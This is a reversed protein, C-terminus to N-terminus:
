STEAAKSKGAKGKGRGKGGTNQQTFAAEQHSSHTSGAPQEGEAEEQREEDALEAACVPGHSQQLEGLMAQFTLTKAKKLPPGDGHLYRCRSGYQCYGAQYNSCLLMRSSEIRHLLEKHYKAQQKVWSEMHLLADTSEASCGWCGADSNYQLWAHSNFDQLITALLGNRNQKEKGYIHATCGPDTQVQRRQLASFQAEMGRLWAEADDLLQGNNNSSCVWTGADHIYQTRARQGHKAFMGNGFARLHSCIFPVLEHHIDAM